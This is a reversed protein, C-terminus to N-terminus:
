RDAVLNRIVTRLQAPQVPKTLMPLRRKAIEAQTEPSRDATIVIAPLDSDYVWRIGDIAATGLQENDLHYDAIILDPQLGTEQLAAICSRESAGTVTRYGWRELLETMGACIAQDNDVVMIVGTERVDIARQESGSAAGEGSGISTGLPALVSFRSGKGPTSEVDIDHDLLRAIRKVISLGLGFGEAKSGGHGNLRKFEEFIMDQQDIPIGCGSDRVDIRCFGTLPTVAVLVHGEETYRIGNSILNRLIRLFLQPDTRLVVGTKQWDFALGKERALPEFEAALSALARDLSLNGIEVTLAGSDLKSIELLASLLGEVSAFATEIKDILSRNDVSLEAEGLAAVFLRAANLPQLLDHSAAALFETKSSNARDADSKAKALEQHSHRLDTLASELAATRERVKTELLIAHEFLSFDNGQMDMSREVRTMLVQNIKRLKENERELDSRTDDKTQMGTTM